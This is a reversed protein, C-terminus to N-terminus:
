VAVLDGARASVTAAPGEPGSLVADGDVSLRLDRAVTLCATGLYPLTGQAGDEATGETAVATYLDSESLSENAYAGTFGGWLDAVSWGTSASILTDWTDQPRDTGEEWVAKMGGPGTADEELWANFVFMGYQHSGEASDYRLGPQAAYWESCYQHGDWDPDALESSHTASAEWYWSQEGTETGQWDRMAFQITHMFEHASLASWFEPPDVWAPNLYIVPYGDPYDDTFYETTYGTAAGLSPDLLVWILYRDSSVPAPWGQEVLFSHWATELAEGAAVATSEPISDDWWNITFNATDVHFEYNGGYVPKSTASPRPRGDLHDPALLAHPHPAPAAGNLAALVEPTLCPAALATSLLLLM